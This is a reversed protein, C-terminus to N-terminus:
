LNDCRYHYLDPSSEKKASRAIFFKRMQVLRYKEIKQIDLPSEHEFYEQRFEEIALDIERIIDACLAAEIKRRYSPQM